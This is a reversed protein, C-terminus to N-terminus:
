YGWNKLSLFEQCKEGLVESKRMDTDWNKLAVDQCKGELVELKRM